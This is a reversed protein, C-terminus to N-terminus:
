ASIMRRINSRKELTRASVIDEITEVVVKRIVNMDGYLKKNPLLIDFSSIMDNRVLDNNNIYRKIKDSNKFVKLGEDTTNYFNSKEIIDEEMGSKILILFSVLQEPAPTSDFYVCLDTLVIGKKDTLTTKISNWSTSDKNNMSIIFNYKKGQIEVKNGNIFASSYEPFMNELVSKAKEFVRRKRSKEKSFEKKLKGKDSSCFLTQNLGSSTLVHIEPVQQLAEFHSIKLDKLDHIYDCLFYSFSELGKISDQNKKVFRKIYSESRSKKIAKKSSKLHDSLNSRIDLCMENLAYSLSDLDRFPATTYILREEVSNKQRFDKYKSKIHNIFPYDSVSSFVEGYASGNSFCEPPNSISYQFEDLRILGCEASCILSYHDEAHLHVISM